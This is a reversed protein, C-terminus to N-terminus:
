KVTLNYENRLREAVRDQWVLMDGNELTAGLLVEEKIVEYRNVLQKWLAEIQQQRYISDVGVVHAGSGGEKPGGKTGASSISNDQKDLFEDEDGDKLKEEKTPETIIEGSDVDVEVTKRPKSHEKRYEALAASIKIKENDIDDQVSAPLETAKIYNDVTQRSVRLCEAIQDHTMGDDTKFSLYFYARDMPSLPLNDNTTLVKRKRELDTTGPPNLLVTVDTVLNGNPYIERGTGVLHRLARIRREGDTQYFFMDKTIDGLIPDAPGCSAYIKDALDPIGLFLEYLEESLGKRNQRANFSPRLRIYDLHIKRLHDSNKTIARVSERTGIREEMNFPLEPQPPKKSM